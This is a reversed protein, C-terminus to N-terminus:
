RVWDRCADCSSGPPLSPMLRIRDLCWNVEDTASKTSSYASASEQVESWSAVCEQEKLFFEVAAQRVVEDKSRVVPYSGLHLTDPSETRFEEKTRSRHSEGLARFIGQEFLEYVFRITAEPQIEAPFGLDAGVPLGIGGQYEPLRIRDRISDFCRLRASIDQAMAVKVNEVAPWLPNEPTHQRLLIWEQHDQVTLRVSLRGNEERWVRGKPVPWNEERPRSWFNMLDHDLLPAAQIGGLQDLISVLMLWHRDLGALQRSYRGRGRKPSEERIKRGITSQDITTQFKAEVRIRIDSYSLGPTDKKLDVIFRIVEPPTKKGRPM